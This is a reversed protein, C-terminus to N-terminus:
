LLRVSEYDKILKANLPNSTFIADHGTSLNSQVVMQKIKLTKRDIILNPVVPREKRLNFLIRSFKPAPPMKYEQWIRKIEVGFPKVPSHTEKFDLRSVRLSFPSFQVELVRAFGSSPAGVFLEKPGWSIVTRSRHRSNNRYFFLSFRSGIGKQIQSKPKVVNYLLVLTRSGIVLRLPAKSM